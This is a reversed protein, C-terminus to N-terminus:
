FELNLQIGAQKKSFQPQIHLSVDKDNGSMDKYLARFNKGVNNGVAYGMM